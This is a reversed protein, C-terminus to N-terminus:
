KVSAGNLPTSHCVVSLRKEIDGLKLVHHLCQRSDPLHFRCVIITAINVATNSLSMLLM